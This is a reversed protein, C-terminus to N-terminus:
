LLIRQVLIPSRTGFAPPPSLDSSLKPINLSSLTPQLHGPPPTAHLLQSSTESTQHITYSTYSPDSPSSSSSIYSPYSPYSTHSRSDTSPPPPQTPPSIPFACFRTVPALSPKRPTICVFRAHTLAESVSSVLPSSIQHKEPRPTSSSFDRRDAPSAAKKIVVALRGAPSLCFPRLPDLPLPELAVPPGPPACPHPPLPPPPPKSALGLGLFAVLTAQAGPRHHHPM